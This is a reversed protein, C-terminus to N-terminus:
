PTILEIQNPYLFHWKGNQTQAMVGFKELKVFKPFVIKRHFSSYCKKNIVSRLFDLCKSINESQDLEFVEIVKKGATASLKHKECRHSQGRKNLSLTIVKYKAICGCKSTNGTRKACRQVDLNEM